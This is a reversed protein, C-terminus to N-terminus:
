KSIIRDNAAVKIQFFRQIVLGKKVEYLLIGGDRPDRELQCKFLGIIRGM